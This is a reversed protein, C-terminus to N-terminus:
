ASTTGRRPAEALLAAGITGADVGLTGVRIEIADPAIGERWLAADLAPRLQDAGAALGGALVFFPVDLWRSFVAMAVGLARGAANIAAAHAPHEPQEFARRVRFAANEGDAVGLGRLMRDIGTQSAYQELCGRGGCGCAPGGPHVCLHGLEVGRGREGRLLRGDLVLSGGTGTGLALCIQRPAGAGAGVMAEGWGVCNADNDAAVPLAIAAQLADVLAIGDLWPLNPSQLVARGDTSLVGAVGLGVSQVAGFSRQMAEIEAALVAVLGEASRADPGVEVVSRGCVEGGRIWGLKLRTGGVDVGIRATM